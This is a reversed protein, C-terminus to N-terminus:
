RKGRKWPPTSTPYRKSTNGVLPEAGRIKHHKDIANFIRLLDEASVSVARSIRQLEHVLPDVANDAIEVYTGDTSVYDTIDIANNLDDATPAHPDFGAGSPAWCMTMRGQPLMKPNTNM